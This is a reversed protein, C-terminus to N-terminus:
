LKYCLAEVMLLLMILLTLSKRYNLQSSESDTGCAIGGSAAEQDCPGKVIFQRQRSISQAFESV